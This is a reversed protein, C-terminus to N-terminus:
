RAKWKDRQAARRAQMEPSILQKASPIYTTAGGDIPIVAGTVWRSEQSALWLAAFAVDNPEGTGLLHANEYVAFLEPDSKIMAITPTGTDVFGLALANCRIKYKAYVLGWHRTLAIEAGKAAVYPAPGKTARIANASAINVISGGGAAIMNPVSYKVPLFVAHTLAQRIYESWADVDLDVTDPLGEMSGTAAANNVLITQRGFAAVTREIVAEIEDPKALDCPLFLASGPEEALEAELRRGLDESRGCFAVKCGEKVFQRVVAAGVGRTGGIVVAVEDKLRSM